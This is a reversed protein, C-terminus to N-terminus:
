HRLKVAMEAYKEAMPLNGKERYARGLGDLARVWKGHSMEVAKDFGAIAADLNHKRLRVNALETVGHVPPFFLCLDPWFPPFRGLVLPSDVFISSFQPHFTGNHPAIRLLELYQAEAQDWKGMDSLVAGLGGHAIPDTPTIEIARKLHAVAKPREHHYRYFNAIDVHASRLNPEIEIAKQFRLPRSLPLNIAKM